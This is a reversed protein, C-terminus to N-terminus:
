APVEVLETAVDPRAKRALGTLVRGPGVEVLTDAGLAVITDLSQRWRVPQVLHDVLRSRWGDADGHAAGDGNSVVPASPLQLVISALASALGDTAAQMLPTHFAGDLNDTRQERPAHDVYRNGRM